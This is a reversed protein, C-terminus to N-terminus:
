HEKKDNGFTKPEFGQLSITYDHHDKSDQLTFSLHRCHLPEFDHHCNWLNVYGAHVMTAKEDALLSV